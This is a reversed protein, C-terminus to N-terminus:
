VVLWSYGPTGASYVYVKASNDVAITVSEGAALTYGNTAAATTPGVLLTGTAGVKVKVVVHKKAPYAPLSAVAGGTGDGTVFDPFSAKEIVM